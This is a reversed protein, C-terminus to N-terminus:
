RPWCRLTPSRRGLGAGAPRAAGLFRLDEHAREKWRGSSRPGVTRGVATAEVRDRGRLRQAPRVARSPSLPMADIRFGM